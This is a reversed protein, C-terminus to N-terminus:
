FISVSCTNDPAITLMYTIYNKNVIGSGTETNELAEAVLRDYLEEAEQIKTENNILTVLNTFIFKDFETDFDIDISKIYGTSIDEHYAIRFGLSTNEEVYVCRKTDNAPTVLLEKMVFGTQMTFSQIFNQSTVDFKPEDAQANASNESDSKEDFKILSSLAGATYATIRPGDEMFYNLMYTVKNKQVKGTGQEGFEFCDEKQSEILDNYLKEASDATLSNDVFLMWACFIDMDFKKKFAISSSTLKGSTISEHYDVKLNYDEKGDTFVAVNNEGRSYESDTLLEVDAKKAFNEIFNSGSIGNESVMCEIVDNGCGSLFLLFFTLLLAIIKKM